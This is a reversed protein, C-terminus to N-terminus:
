QRATPGHDADVVSIVEETLLWSPAPFLRPDIMTFALRAIDELSRSHVAEPLETVTPLGLRKLSANLYYRGRIEPWRLIKGEDVRDYFTATPMPREFYRDFFERSVIFEPTDPPASPPKRKVRFVHPM